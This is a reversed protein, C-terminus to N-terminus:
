LKAELNGELFGRIEEMSEAFTQYFRKSSTVESDRYSTIIIWICDNLMSYFVGYGDMVMPAVFGVNISYGLTSTSLVFNGGGGSKSYLPDDYFEPIPINNETAICWLGFLHRDFGEGKRAENMLRNQAGAAGRFSKAKDQNTAKPDKMKEIWDVVEVSCSRVTETRGHYFIRTTATEYTPAFSKHIKWYTLQLAMQIYSDPHIKQEKMVTKGYGDFQGCHVLISNRIDAVNKEVKEIEGRLTEDIQFKLENPMIQKVPIENWNPEEEEMLSMLIFLSFSISITGDYGSHEGLCGFKGNKFSVLASSKDCWRSNYDGDITRLSSESYDLPENNDLSVCVAAAEVIELLKANDVSM